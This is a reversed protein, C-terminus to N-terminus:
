LGIEVGYLLKPEVRSFEAGLYPYIRTGDIMFELGLKPALRLDFRQFESSLDIAWRLKCYVSPEVRDVYKTETITRSPYHFSPRLFKYENRYDRLTFSVGLSDSGISIESEVYVTDSSPM